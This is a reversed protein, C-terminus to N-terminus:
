LVLAASPSVMTALTKWHYKQLPLMLFFTIPLHRLQVEHRCGHVKLLLIELRALLTTRILM